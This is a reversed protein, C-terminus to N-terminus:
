ASPDIGLRLLIAAIQGEHYALNWIHKQITDAVLYGELYPMSVPQGLDDDSLGRVHEILMGTQRRLEAELAEHTDFARSAKKFEAFQRMGWDLKREAYLPWTAGLITAVEQFQDLASRLEPSPKWDLKDAPVKAAVRLFGDQARELQRVLLDNATMGALTAPNQM